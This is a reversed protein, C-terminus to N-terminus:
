RQITIEGLNRLREQQEEAFLQEYLAPRLAILISPRNEM